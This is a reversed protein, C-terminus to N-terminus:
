AMGYWAMCPPRDVWALINIESPFIAAIQAKQLHIARECIDIMKALTAM